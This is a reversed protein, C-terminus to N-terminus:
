LSSRGVDGMDTWMSGNCACDIIWAPNQTQIVGAVWKCCARAIKLVEYHSTMPVDIAVLAHARGPRPYSPDTHLRKMIPSLGGSGADGLTTTQM